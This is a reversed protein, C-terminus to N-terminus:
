EPDPFRVIDEEILEDGMQVEVVVIDSDPAATLRHKMGVPVSVTDGPGVTREKGDLTVLGQGSVVTWVESRRLHMQYSLRKGAKIRLSKVIVKTGDAHEHHGLVSYHGWVRNEHMPRTEGIQEVYRKSQASATKDSVLIGDSTAVVVADSIGLVVLPTNLENIVHVNRCGEGTIVRGSQEDAMEDSLTNWTGLDKWTGEYPVVAISQEHDLVGYDFSTRPLMDYCARM